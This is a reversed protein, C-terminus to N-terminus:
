ARPCSLVAVSSHGQVDKFSSICFDKFVTNAIRDSSLVCGLITHTGPQLPVLRSAASVPCDYLYALHYM